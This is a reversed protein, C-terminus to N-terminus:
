VYNEMHRSLFLGALKVIIYLEYRMHVNCHRMALQKDIHCQTDVNENDFQADDCHADHLALNIQQM